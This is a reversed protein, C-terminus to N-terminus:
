SQSAIGIQSFKDLQEDVFHGVAYLIEGDQQFLGLPFFETPRGMLEFAGRSAVAEICDAGNGGGNFVFDSGAIGLVFNALGDFVDAFYALM